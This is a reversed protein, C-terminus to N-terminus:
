RRAHRDQGRADQCVSAQTPHSLHAFSASLSEVQSIRASHIGPGHGRRCVGSHWQCETSTESCGSRMAICRSSFICPSSPLRFCSICPARVHGDNRTRFWRELVSIVTTLQVSSTLGLRGLHWRLRTLGDCAHSLSIRRPQGIRARDRCLSVHQQSIYVKSNREAASSVARVCSM